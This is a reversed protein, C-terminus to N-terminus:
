SSKKALHLNLTQVTLLQSQKDVADLLEETLKHIKKAGDNIEEQRVGMKALYEGDTDLRIQGLGDKNQTIFGM